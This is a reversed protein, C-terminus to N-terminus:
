RWNDGDWHKNYKEKMVFALWFQEMSTFQLALVSEGDVIMHKTFEFFHCLLALCGWGEGMMEQLQDQRPLWVCVPYGRVQHIYKIERLYSVGGAAVLDDPDLREKTMRLEVAKECMRVYQESTDM